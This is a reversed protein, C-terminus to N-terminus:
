CKIKRVIGKDANVEVLDGDKLVKTAIKTGIICPINLERSVIAAHCTIGGEDTIIAAAKKMAPVLDPFTAISVLIDGKSMKEADKITKIIKVTGKVNGLCAPMGKIESINKDVKELSPLKKMFDLYDDYLLVKSHGNESLLISAKMREEPIREDYDEFLNDFEYYLMYQLKRVDTNLRSAIEKLLIYVRYWVLLLYNKRYEKIEGYKRTANLVRLDDGNLNLESLLKKQKQEINKTYGKILGIQKTINGKGLLEEIKELYAKEDWGITDYFDFTIWSWDRVHKKFEESKRITKIDKSKLRELMELLALEEKMVITQSVPTILTVFYDAFMNEKSLEKLKKKIIGESLDSLISEGYELFIPVFAIGYFKKFIDIVEKFLSVLEDNSKKKIDSLLIKMTSKDSKECLEYIEKVNKELFDSHIIRDLLKKAGDRIDKAKLFCKTKTNTYTCVAVNLDVGYYKPFIDTISDNIISMMCIGYPRDEWLVIWEDTKKTPNSYYSIM